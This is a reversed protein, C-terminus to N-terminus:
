GVKRWESVGGNGKRRGKSSMEEEDIVLRREHPIAAMRSINETCNAILKIHFLSISDHLDSSRRRSGDEVPGDM